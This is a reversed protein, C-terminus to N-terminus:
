TCAQMRLMQVLEIVILLVITIWYDKPYVTSVNTVKDRPHSLAKHLERARTVRQLDNTNITYNDSNDRVRQHMGSGNCYDCHIGISYYYFLFGQYLISYLM